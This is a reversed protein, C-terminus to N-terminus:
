EDFHITIDRKTVGSFNRALTRIAKTNIFQRGFFTSRYESFINVEVWVIDKYLYIDINDTITNLTQFSFSTIVNIDLLKLVKIIIGLEEETIEETHHINCWGLLLNPYDEVSTIKSLLTEVYNISYILKQRDKSKDNFVKIM